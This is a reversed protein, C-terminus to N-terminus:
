PASPPVIQWRASPAFWANSARLAALERGGAPRRPPVVAPVSSARTLRRRYRREPVPLLAPEPSPEGMRGHIAARFVRRFQGGFHVVLGRARPTWLTRALAAPLEQIYHELTTVRKARHRLQWRIKEVDNYEIYSETSHAARLCNPTYGHTGTTPIDLQATIISQWRATWAPYTRPWLPQERPFGDLYWEFFAITTPCDIAAHQDVAGGPRTSTKSQRLILFMMRQGPARADVLMDAPLLIDARTLRLAEGIRTGGMFAALVIAVFTFDGLVLAVCLAARIAHMPLPPTHQTPERLGWEAKIDWALSLSARWDRRLRGVAVITEAYEAQSCRTAFLFQGYDRLMEALPRPDLGDTLVCLPSGHDAAWRAFALVKNALLMKRKPGESPRERLDITVDRVLGRGPRGRGRGALPLPMARGRAAPVDDSSSSSGRVGSNARGDSARRTPVHDSESESSSAPGPNPHVDGDRTVDRTWGVGDPDVPAHLVVHLRARRLADGKARKAELASFEDGSLAWDDPPGERPKAFPPPLLRQWSAVPLHPDLAAVDGGLVDHAWSAADPAPGARTSYGRSPADAPNATTGVHLLGLQIEAFMLEFVFTRMLWNLATASSRGKALAGVCVTSDCLILVRENRLGRRIVDRAALRVGRMESEHIHDCAPLRRFRVVDRWSAAKALQDVWHRQKHATVAGCVVDSMSHRPEQHPQELPEDEMAEELLGLMSDACNYGRLSVHGARRNRHRWLESAVEPLVTTEVVGAHPARGIQVGEWRRSVPNWERGGGMADTAYVTTSVPARINTAAFPLLVLGALVEDRAAGGLPLARSSGPGARRAHHYAAGYLSFLSRGFLSDHALMSLLVQMVLGTCDPAAGVVTGVLATLLLFSPKASSVGALGDVMGGIMEFVPLKRFSKSVKPPLGAKVYATGVCGLLATDREGDGSDDVGAPPARARARHTRRDLVHVVFHDDIMTGEWTRGRPVPGRYTLYEDPRVAGETRLVGLHALQSFDTANLDGMPVTRQVARVRHREDFDAGERVRYRQACELHAIDKFTFFFGIQNTRARSRTCAETHYFDPLDDGSGRVIDNPGLQLECFCAAHPMLERSIGLSEELSNMPVRSSVFRDVDESKAVPFAGAALSDVFSPNTPRVGDPGGCCDKMNAVCRRRVGGVDDAPDVWVPLDLLREIEMMGARDARELVRVWEARSCFTRAARPPQEYPRPPRRMVAPAEFAAGIEKILYRSPEFSGVRDKPFALKEAVLPPPGMGRAPGRAAGSLANVDREYAASATEM